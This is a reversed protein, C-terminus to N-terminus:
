RTVLIYKIDFPSIKYKKAITKLKSPDLKAKQVAERFRKMEATTLLRVFQLAIKDPGAKRLNKELSAVSEKSAMWKKITLGVENRVETDKIKYLQTQLSSLASSNYSKLIETVPTYTKRVIQVPEDSYKGDILKLLDEKLVPHFHCKTKELTAGLLPLGFEKNLTFPTDIVLALVKSKKFKSQTRYFATASAFVVPKVETNRELKIFEFKLQRVVGYSVNLQNLLNTLELVTLGPVGFAAVVM